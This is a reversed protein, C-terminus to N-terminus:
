LMSRNPPILFFRAVASSATAATAAATAMGAHAAPNVITGLGFGPVDFVIPPRTANEGVSTQAIPLALEWAYSPQWPRVSVARQFPLAKTSTAAGGVGTQAATLPTDPRDVPSM